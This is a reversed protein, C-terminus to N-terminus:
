LLKGYRAAFEHAPIDRKASNCGHCAFVINDLTHSGGRAIPVVHDITLKKFKLECYHCRGAAKEMAARIESPKAKIEQGNIRARRRHKANKKEMRVREKKQEETLRVRIPRLLKTIANATRKNGAVADAIAQAALKKVEKRKKAAQREIRRVARDVKEKEARRRNKENAKARFDPDTAYRERCRQNFKARYEPRNVYNRNQERRKEDRDKKTASWNAQKERYARIKEIEGPFRREFDEPSFWYEYLKEGHKTKHSFIMGDERDDGRKHM